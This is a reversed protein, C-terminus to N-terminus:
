FLTKVREMHTIYKFGTNKAILVFKEANFDEATFTDKLKMYEEFTMNDKNHFWNWEGKGLQSYLVWHVFMGFGLQEFDLIYKKAEPIKM